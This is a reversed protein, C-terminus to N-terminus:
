SSWRFCCSAHCASQDNEHRKERAKVLDDSRATSRLRCRIGSRPGQMMKPAPGDCRRTPNEPKRLKRRRLRRFRHLLSAQDNDVSNHFRRDCGVAGRRCYDLARQEFRGVRLDRRAPPDSLQLTEDARGHRGLDVGIKGLRGLRMIRLVAHSRLGQRGVHHREAQDVGGEVSNRM